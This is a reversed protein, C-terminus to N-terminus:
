DDIDDIPSSSSIFSSFAAFIFSMLDMSVLIFLCEREVGIRRRGYSGDEGEVEEGEMVDGFVGREADPPKVM